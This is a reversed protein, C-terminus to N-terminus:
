LLVDLPKSKGQTLVDKRPPVDRLPLKEGQPLKGKMVMYPRPPKKGPVLKPVIKELPDVNVRPSM